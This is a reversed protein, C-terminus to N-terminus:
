EKIYQPIYPCHYFGDDKPQSILWLQIILALREEPDKIANIRPKKITYTEFFGGNLLFHSASGISEYSAVELM